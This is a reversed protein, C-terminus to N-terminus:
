IFVNTSPNLMRFYDHDHGGFIMDIYGDKIEIHQSMNIDQDKRIHNLSIVLDCKQQRRL